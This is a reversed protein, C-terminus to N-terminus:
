IPSDEFVTIKASVSVVKESPLITALLHFTFEVRVTPCDHANQETLFAQYTAAITAIVISYCLPERSISMLEQALVFSFSPVHSEQRSLKHDEL